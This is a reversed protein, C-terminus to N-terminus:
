SNNPDKTADASSSSFSFSIKVDDMGSLNSISYVELRPRTVPGRESIKLKSITLSYLDLRLGTVLGCEPIKLESM